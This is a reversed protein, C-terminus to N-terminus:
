YSDMSPPSPPKCAPLKDTKGREGGVGGGRLAPADARPGQTHAHSIPGCEKRITNNYFGVHENCIQLFVSSCLSAFSFQGSM